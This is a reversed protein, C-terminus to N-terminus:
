CLFALITEREVCCNPLSGEIEFTFIYSFQSACASRNGMRRHIRRTGAIAVYDIAFVLIYTHTCIHICYLYICTYVYVCDRQLNTSPVRAGGAAVLVFLFSFSTFPVTLCRSITEASRFKLPGLPWSVRFSIIERLGSVPASVFFYDSLFYPAASRYHRTLFLEAGPM